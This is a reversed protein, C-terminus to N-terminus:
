PIQVEEWTPEMVQRELVVNRIYEEGTEAWRALTAAQELIGNDSEAVRVTRHWDGDPIQSALVGRAQWEAVQNFNPMDWSLRYTDAM